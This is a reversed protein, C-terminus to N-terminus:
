FSMSAQLGYTRPEGFPSAVSLTGPAIGPGAYIYTKYSRDALNRVWATIDLQGSGLKVEGLGLRANVLTYPNVRFSVNPVTFYSSTSNVDVNLHWAGYDTRLFTYLLSAAGNWRPAQLINGYLPVGGAAGGPAPYPNPVSSTHLNTYNVSLSLSLDRIPAITVDAEVGDGKVPPGNYYESIQAAVTQVSSQVHDWEEYYGAINVRLHNDFFEQKNGIEFTKITSLGVQGFTQSDVGYAGVQYSTSFKAYSMADPTWSYAVIATVPVRTDKIEPASCPDTESCLRSPAADYAHAYVAGFPRTGNKTDNSVRVGATLALKQAFADPRWTLQAYGAFSRSSVKAGTTPSLSQPPIYPPDLTVAPGLSVPLYGPPGTTIVNPWAMGWYSNQVQQAHERIFFLGATWELTDFKGLFQLEESIQDHKQDYIPVVDSLYGYQPAGLFLGPLSAVVPDTQYSKMNDKRYATISKLTIDPTMDWVAALKTGWFRQNDLPRYMPYPVSEIRNPTSAWVTALGLASGDAYPDTTTLLQNFIETSKVESFDYSFDFRLNDLADYRLSLKAGGAETRGFNNQNPDPNKQWGNNDTALLDLKASLKGMAPSDLHAQVKWYGFNGGEANVRVGATGSPARTVLRIAGGVSNKGFLTGQPGRLVEVRELENLDLVLAFVRGFYVDDIYVPVPNDFTVDQARSSSVGRLSSVLLTQNGAFPEFHMAPIEGKALNGLGTIGRKRLEDSSIANVAVPVAQIAEERRQATVVIEELVGGGQSQGAAPETSAARVGVAVLMGSVLLLVHAVTAPAMGLLSAPVRRKTKM